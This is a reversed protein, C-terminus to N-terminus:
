AEAPPEPAGYKQDLGMRCLRAQRELHAVFYRIHAMRAPDVALEGDGIACVEQCMRKLDNTLDLLVYALNELPLSASFITPPDSEDQDEAEVLKKIPMGGLRMEAFPVLVKRRQEDGPKGFRGPMMHLSANTRPVISVTDVFRGSMAVPEIEPPGPIASAARRIPPSPPAAKVPRARVRKPPVAM